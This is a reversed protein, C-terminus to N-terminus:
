RRHSQAKGSEQTVVPARASATKSTANETTRVSASKCVSTASIDPHVDIHALQLTGDPFVIACEALSMADLVCLDFDNYSHRTCFCRCFFLITQLYVSFNAQYVFSMSKSLPIGFIIFVVTLVKLFM